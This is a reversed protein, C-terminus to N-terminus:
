QGRHGQGTHEPCGAECFGRIPTSYHSRSTNAAPRQWSRQCLAQLLRNSDGLRRGPQRCCHTSDRPHLRARQDFCHHTVFPLDHGRPAELRTGLIPSHVPSDVRGGLGWRGMVSSITQCLLLQSTHLTNECLCHTDCLSERSKRM